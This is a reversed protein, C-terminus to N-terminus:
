FAAQSPQILSVARLHSLNPGGHKAFRKLQVLDIDEKRIQEPPVPVAPWETRRDFEKLARPTLLVRSLNDWFCSPTRHRQQNKLKRRKATPPSSANTAPEAEVCPKRKRDYSMLSRESPM